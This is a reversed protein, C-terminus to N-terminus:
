LVSGPAQRPETRSQSRFGSPTEGTWRRFARAFASSDDFGLLFAIETVSYAHSRLYSCALEKRTEELLVAYSTGLDKLRRQLSRGSMGLAAAVLAPSVEGSLQEILVARVQEALTRVGMQALYRQALDDNHRALEANASAFPRDLVFADITMADRTAEFQVPCRFFRAYPTLDEPARRRREVSVLTLSRDTLTRATRVILSMVADLAAPSEPGESSVRVFSLTATTETTDLVLTRADSVLRSYRVLRMLAERLNASAFVAYGLAHFTTPRVYRSARLGFAPDGTREIAARWLAAMTAAPLRANPDNLTKRDVRAAALVDEADVGVAALADV